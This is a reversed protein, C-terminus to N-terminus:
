AGITEPMMRKAVTKASLETLYRYKSDEHINNEDLAYLLKPFAPSIYVGVENKLGLYRQKLIEEILMATEKEYEPYENIYMFISLFPSQGNSTQLTNIQYNLTQIGDSIEKTLRREVIKNFTEEYTDYRLLYGTEKALIELEQKVDKKIKEKSVRVYPSLHALSITQGGFQASAVQAIIQTAITCATRFSKPTEIMKGNIVTGNEFMDKLNILCCNFSPNLYHGLDHIHIIGDMHAQAIHAPLKMRLCIDKSVEEAVLDRQTSILGSQKNSNEELSSKNSGDILGLVKGDITNKSRQYERIKRFGEYARATDTHGEYCLYTFVLEEIKSIHTIPEKGMLEAEICEAIKEALGEDIRGSGYQMAKLIAKYIKQKQFEVTTGDRKIVKM